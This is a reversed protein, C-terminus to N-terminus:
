GAKKKEPCEGVTEGVQETSRPVLRVVNAIAARKEDLDVSSYHERMQETVHGTISRTVVADVGARRALDNFTRRLGHVTFREKIGAAKACARWAKVLSGPTRLTGADSPFVWGSDFGPAQDSLLTKRHERLISALEPVLPLERPARKRRSVPGVDGRKQKRQIRLVGKEEDIDEWRLASAHCFRLGTFALTAALSYNRPHKFKMADLFNALQPATLANAGEQEDRDPFTVRTTPDRPLDLQAVADRTMNRLVRFWSHVSTVSYRREKKEVASQKKRKKAWTGSLSKNIWAQVDAPRLADYYYTGLAPLIHNDLANTYGDLTDSDIIRGKSELWSRAFDGVRMRGTAPGCASSDILEARIAAAERANAAEVVKDVEKKQGTRSDTIRARLYFRDTSLM